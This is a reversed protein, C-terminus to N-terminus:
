LEGLTHVCRPLGKSKRERTHTPMKGRLREDAESTLAHFLPSLLTHIPKRHLRSARAKYRITTLLCALRAISSRRGSATIYAPRTGRSEFASSLAQRSSTPAINTLTSHNNTPSYNPFSKTSQPVRLFNIRVNSM